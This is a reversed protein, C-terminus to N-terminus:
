YNSKELMFGANVWIVMITPNEKPPQSTSGKWPFVNASDYGLTLTMMLRSKKPADNLIFRETLTPSKQLAPRGCTEVLPNRFLDRANKFIVDDVDKSFSCKPRMM